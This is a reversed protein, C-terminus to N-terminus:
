DEGKSPRDDTERNTRSIFPVEEASSYRLVFSAIALIL